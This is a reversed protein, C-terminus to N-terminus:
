ECCSPTPTVHASEVEAGADSAAHESIEDVPVLGDCGDLTLGETALDEAISAVFSPERAEGDM